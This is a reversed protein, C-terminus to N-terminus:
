LTQRFAEFRRQSDGAFSLFRVGIGTLGERGNTTVRVAEAIGAIPREDDPLNFEFHIKTGPEYIRDTRILMGSASINETQCLVMDNAGGLKIELRALFRASKRPAVNVLSSVMSQIQDASNELAMVRNAGKGIFQAAEESREEATLLVLSSHRCSSNEARVAKLFPSLEMDPLPFRVILVEFPVLSLLELAGSGSPFRDIEFDDRGLFPVVRGFEERSVGVILVNRRKFMFTQVSSLM